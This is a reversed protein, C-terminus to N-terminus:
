WDWELASYLDAPRCTWWAQPNACRTTHITAYRYLLLQPPYGLATTDAALWGQVTVGGPMTAALAPHTALTSAPPRGLSVEGQDAPTGAPKAGVLVFRHDAGSRLLDVVHDTQNTVAFAFLWRSPQREIALLQISLGDPTTLPEPVVLQGTSAYTLKIQDIHAQPSQAQGRTAAYVGASLLALLLVAALRPLLTPWWPRRADIAAPARAGATEPMTPSMGSEKARRAIEVEGLARQTGLRERLAQWGAAAGTDPPAGDADELAALTARWFTAERQCTACGALHAAIRSREGEALRGAVYEMIAARRAACDTSDLM